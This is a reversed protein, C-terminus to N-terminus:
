QKPLAVHPRWKKPCFNRVPTNKTKKALLKQRFQILGTKSFILKFKLQKWVSSFEVRRWKIVPTHLLCNLWNVIDIRNLTLHWTSNNFQSATVGKRRDPTFNRCRVLIVPLWIRSFFFFQSLFFWKSYDLVKFRYCSSKVM